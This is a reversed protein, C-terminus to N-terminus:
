LHTIKAHLTRIRLQVADDEVTFVTM